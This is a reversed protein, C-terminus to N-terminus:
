RNPEEIKSRGVGRIRTGILFILSQRPILHGSVDLIFVCRRFRYCRKVVEKIRLKDRDFRSSAHRLNTRSSWFFSSNRVKFTPFPHAWAQRSSRPILLNSYPFSSCGGMATVLKLAVGPLKIHYTLHTSENQSHSRHSIICVSVSQCQELSIAWELALFRFPESIKDSDPKPEIRIKDTM